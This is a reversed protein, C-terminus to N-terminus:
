STCNKLNVLVIHRIYYYLTRMFQLLLSLCQLKRPCNVYPFSTVPYIHLAASFHLSKSFTRGPDLAESAILIFVSIQMQLAKWAPPETCSLLWEIYSYGLLSLSEAYPAFNLVKAVAAVRGSLKQELTAKYQAPIEMLAALAFEAEKRSPPINKSMIEALKLHPVIERYHSLAEGFGNFTSDDPYFSFVAQDRTLAAWENSQTFDIGVILNSSELGAQSLAATVQTFLNCM